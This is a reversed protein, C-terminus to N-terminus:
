VKDYKIVYSLGIFLNAFMWEAILDHLVLNKGLAHLQFALAVKGVAFQATNTRDLCDVCNTRIIGTQQMLVALSEDQFNLTIIGASKM